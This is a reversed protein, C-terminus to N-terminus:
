RRARRSLFRRADPVVGLVLAHSSRSLAGTDSIDSSIAMSSHGDDVDTSGGNGCDTDVNQHVQNAHAGVLRHRPGDHQQGQSGHADPLLPASSGSSDMDAPVRSDPHHDSPEMM